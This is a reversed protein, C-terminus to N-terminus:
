ANPDFYPREAQPTIRLMHRRTQGEKVQFDRLASSIFTLALKELKSSLYYKSSLSETTMFLLQGLRGTCEFIGIKVM